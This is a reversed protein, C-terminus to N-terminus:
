TSTDGTVIYENAVVSLISIIAYQGGTKNANTRLRLTAGSGASVSVSGTGYQVISCSFGSGLGSPVTLTISSSSTFAIVRGNDTAVLTYATGSQTNVGEPTLQFHDSIFGPSDAYVKFIAVGSKANLLVYDNIDHAAM